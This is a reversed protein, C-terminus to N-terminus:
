LQRALSAIIPAIEGASNAFGEAKALLERNGYGYMAAVAPIGNMHAAEIDGHTDGVVVAPIEKKAFTGILEAKSPYPEASYYRSIRNIIGTSELALRIYEEPSNSCVVLEHGSDALLEVMERVGPFLEGCEVVADCILKEYRELAGDPVDGLLESLMSAAGKPATELIRREDPEAIGYEQLVQRAALLVVTKAQFLTGDLDLIILM